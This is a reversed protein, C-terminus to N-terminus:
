IVLEEIEETDPGEQDQVVELVKDAIIQAVEERRPVLICNDGLRDTWEQQIDPNSGNSGQMLHLHFVEYKEQAAALLEENTADEYQGTGMIDTQVERPLRTLVPEDGITFLIGKKGRQEFHDTSTHNAAFYWALHYSEGYNGGGGGEIYLKTLWHDLLEDSSEFQGVQLPARDVEHDGIGLFLVQPDPVGGDIIAQMMHPLGEKVLFHPITGMSGTVDLAIIVPVSNPHEESDRSERITVGNPNMESNMSRETFIERASKRTYGLRESRLARDSYSYGGHGM